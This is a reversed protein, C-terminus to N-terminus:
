DIVNGIGAHSLASPHPPRGFPSVSYGDCPGCNEITPQGDCVSFAGCSGWTKDVGGGPETPARWKERALGSELKARLPAAAATSQDLILWEDPGLWLVALNGESSSTCPATPMACGLIRAAIEAAAEGQLLLRAASPLVAYTMLDAM